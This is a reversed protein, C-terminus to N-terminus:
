HAALAERADALTAVFSAPMGSADGRRQMQLAVLGNPVLNVSWALRRQASYGMLGEHVAAVEASQVPYERMDCYIKWGPRAQDMAARLEADFARATPLDWTGSITFELVNAQRDWAIHYGGAETGAPLTFREAARKLTNSLGGLEAVAQETLEGAALAQRSHLSVSCSAAGIDEVQASVARAMTDLRSTTASQEDVAAVITQQFAAIEEITARVRGIATIAAAAERQISEIVPAVEDTARATEQALEKVEGAVVAFGKGSEGARAAEITANLALLNTQEAIGTILKVVNGVRDSSEGLAGVVATTAAVADVAERAMQSARGANEAISSVAAKIQSGSEEIGRVDVAIARVSTEIADAERTTDRMGSTVTRSAEAIEEGAIDLLQVAPVIPELTRALAAMAQALGGTEGSVNRHASSRSGRLDGRSLADAASQVRRLM